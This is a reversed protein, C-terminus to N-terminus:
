VAAECRLKESQSRVESINKSGRFGLRRSSKFGDIESANRVTEPFRGVVWNGVLEVFAHHYM